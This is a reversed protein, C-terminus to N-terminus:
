FIYPDQVKNKFGKDTYLAQPIGYKKIWAMLCRMAAETTEEAHLQSLTTGTADDVMNMLCSQKGDSFWDHFSGDMQVLEGFRHRRERRSRYVSRKRRRTWLGEALLWRRLTEHDVSLEVQALKESALTPGFGQLRERYYALVAQKHTEQYRRNSQKGRSGHVLGAEGLTQYRKYSRKTQRYSLGLCDAATKLTMQNRTVQGFYEARLREKKSMLLHGEM